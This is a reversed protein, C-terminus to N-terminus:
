QHQPPPEHRTTRMAGVLPRLVGALRGPPCFSPTRMAGVLPRLGPQLEHCLARERRDEDGRRPTAVPRAWAM